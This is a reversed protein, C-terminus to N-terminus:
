MRTRGPNPDMLSILGIGNIYGANKIVGKIIMRLSMATDDHVAPARGKQGAFGDLYWDWLWCILPRCMNNSHM